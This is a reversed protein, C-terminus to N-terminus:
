LSIIEGWARVNRNRALNRLSNISEENCDKADHPHVGVSTYLNPYKEALSIAKASSKEGTGVIMAAEVGANRARKIVADIDNDYSRDDLHCHSDFLKM